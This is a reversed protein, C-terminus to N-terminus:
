KYWNSNGLYQEYIIEMIEFIHQKQDSVELTCASCVKKTIIRVELDKYKTRKVVCWLEGARCLSSVAIFKNEMTMTPKPKNVM